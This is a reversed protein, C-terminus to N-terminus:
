FYRASIGFIQLKITINNNNIELKIGTNRNTAKINSGLKMAAKHLNNIQFSIRSHFDPPIKKTKQDLQTAPLIKLKGLSYNFWHTEQVPPM